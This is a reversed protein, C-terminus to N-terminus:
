AEKKLCKAMNDIYNEIDHDAVSDLRAFNVLAQWLNQGEEEPLARNRLHIVDRGVHRYGSFLPALAIGDNDNVIRTCKIESNFYSAFAANGIKPSGFTVVEVPLSKLNQFDFASIAALTAGASHGTFLISDCKGSEIIANLKAYIKAKISNHSIFFGSHVELEPKKHKRSLFPVKCMQFNIKWDRLSDSGRFCVIAQSGGLTVTAQAGTDTSVFTECSEIKDCYVDRCMHAIKLHNETLSPHAVGTRKFVFLASVNSVCSSFLLSVYSLFRM